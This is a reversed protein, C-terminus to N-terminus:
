QTSVSFNTLGRHYCRDQYIGIRCEFVLIGQPAPIVLSAEIGNVTAEPHCCCLSSLVFVKITKSVAYCVSFFSASLFSQWATLFSHPLHVLVCFLVNCTQSIASALGDSASFKHFQLLCSRYQPRLRPFPQLAGSM